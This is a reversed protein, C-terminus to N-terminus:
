WGLIMGWHRFSPNLGTIKQSVESFMHHKPLSTRLLHGQPDTFTTVGGRSCESEDVKEKIQAKQLFLNDPNEPKWGEGWDISHDERRCVWCSEMRRPPLLVFKKPHGHSQTHVGPIAAHFGVHYLTQPEEYNLHNFSISSTFNNSTWVHGFQHDWLRGANQAMKATAFRMITPDGLHQNKQIRQVECRHAGLLFNRSMPFGVTFKVELFWGETM